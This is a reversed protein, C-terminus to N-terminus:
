TISRERDVESAFTFTKARDGKGLTRMRARKLSKDGTNFSAGRKGM